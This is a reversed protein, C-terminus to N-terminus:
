AEERPLRITFTTGRGPTSEAAITGGHGRVIGEVIALGLGMGGKTTFGPEFVRGLSEPAIGAGEDRVALVLGAGDERAALDVHEPRAAAACASLGNDVLNILARRLEAPDFRAPLPRREPAVALRDGYLRALDDLLTAADGDVPRPEPLRAFESFERVLTRLAAVEEDVIEVCEGLLSAYAPAVDDPVRDKLQQVALQIPTLPNKIEHALRRAFDRWAAVRALREIEARQARLDAVMGDFAAVLDAVEGTAPVDVATDLDGAGVRRAAGALAEVPKAIRRALVIGFASAIALLVAYTLVFPVVYGSLAAARDERMARVLGLTAAANEARAVMARALPRAGIRTVGDRGPVSVAVAVWAGVREPEAAGRSGRSAVWTALEAAGEPITGPLEFTVLGPSAAAAAISDARAVAAAWVALRAKDERLRERSETVAGDLATEIEALFTGSLSRDLLGRVLLTLPLAPLLVVVAFAVLLRTRIRNM